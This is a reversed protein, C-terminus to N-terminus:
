NPYQYITLDGKKKIIEYKSFDNEEEKKASNPTEYAKINIKNNNKISENSPVAPPFNDSSDISIKIFEKNLIDEATLEEEDGIEVAIGEQDLFVFNKQIKKHILNRIYNLKDKKSCNLSCIKKENFYINLCEDNGISKLKLKKENIINELVMENEDNNDVENNEQDLFIYSVKIKEKLKQRIFTLNDSMKFPKTVIPKEDLYIKM